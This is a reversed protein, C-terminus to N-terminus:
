YGVLQKDGGIIESPIVSCPERYNSVAIDDSRAARGNRDETCEGSLSAVMQGNGVRSHSAEPDGQLLTDIKNELIELPHIPPLHEDWLYGRNVDHVDSPCHGRRQRMLNDADPGTLLQVLHHTWSVTRM